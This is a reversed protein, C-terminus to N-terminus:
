HQPGVYAVGHQGPSVETVNVVGPDVAQVWGMAALEHISIRKIGSGTNFPAQLAAAPWLMSAYALPEPFDELPDFGTSAVGAVVTSGQLTTFVPSGSMQHEVQADVRFNPFTCLPTDTGQYDHEKVEGQSANLKPMLTLKATEDDVIQFDSMATYGVVAASSGPPPPAFSLTLPQLQLLSGDISPMELTLLAIDTQDLHANVEYIPLFVGNVTGDPNSGEIYLVSAEDVEDDPEVIHTATLCLNRGISFATGVVDIHDARRRIIPMVVRQLPRPSTTALLDTFELKGLTTHNFDKSKQQPQPTPRRDQDL